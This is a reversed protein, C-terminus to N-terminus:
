YDIELADDSGVEIGETAWHKVVADIDARLQSVKPPKGLDLQRSRYVVSTGLAAFGQVCKLYHDARRAPNRLINYDLRVGDFPGPHDYVTEGDVLPYLLIPVDDGEDNLSRVGFYDDIQEFQLDALSDFAYAGSPPFRPHKHGCILILDGFLPRPDGFGIDVSVAQYLIEEPLDAM